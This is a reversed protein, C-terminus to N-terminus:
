NKCAEVEIQRRAIQYDMDTIQMSMNGYEIGMGVKRYLEAMKAYNNRRRVEAALMQSAAQCSPSLSRDSYETGRRATDVSTAPAYLPDAFSNGSFRGVGERRLQNRYQEVDQYAPYFSGEAYQYNVCRSNYDAVMANYRNVDANNNHNVVSRAGEMRYEEALCYRIQDTSLVLNQGIPPKSEQLYVAQSWASWPWVLGIVVAAMGLLKRNNGTAAAM